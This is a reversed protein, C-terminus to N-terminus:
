KMIKEFAKLMVDFTKKAKISERYGCRDKCFMGYQDTYVIPLGCSDCTVEIDYTGNPRQNTIKAGM